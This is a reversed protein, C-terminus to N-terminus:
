LKSKLLSILGVLMVIVPWVFQSSFGFNLTWGSNFFLFFAGIGILFISFYM